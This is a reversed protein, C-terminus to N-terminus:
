WYSMYKVFGDYESMDGLFLHCVRFGQQIAYAGEDVMGTSKGVGPKAVVAVLDGYKYGKISSSKNVLSFHSKIVVGGAPFDANRAELIMQPDSFDYFLDTSIAFNLAQSLVERGAHAQSSSSGATAIKEM